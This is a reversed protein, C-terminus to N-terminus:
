YMTQPNSQEALRKELKESHSTTDLYLLNPQLVIENKQPVPSSLPTAGKGSSISPTVSQSPYHANSETDSEEKHTRPTSERSLPRITPLIRPAEQSLTHSQVMRRVTHQVPEPVASSMVDMAMDPSPSFMEPKASVLGFSSQTTATTTQIPTQASSREDTKYYEEEVQKMKIKEVYHTFYVFQNRHAPVPTIKGKKLLQGSYRGTLSFYQWGETRLRELTTNLFYYKKDIKFLTLIGNFITVLLSLIFTAWYVQITFNSNQYVYTKDSNQISLLAPVFLSGVTIVVHGLYFIIGYNRARKQFNELINLYRTKIIQKQVPSLDINELLNQFKSRDKYSTCCCVNYTPEYRTMPNNTLVEKEDEV